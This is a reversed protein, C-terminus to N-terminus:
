SHFICPTTLIVNTNVGLHLGSRQVRQRRPDPRHVQQAHAHLAVRERHQM